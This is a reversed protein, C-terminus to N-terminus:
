VLSIVETAFGRQRAQHRTCPNQAAFGQLRRFEMEGIQICHFPGGRLKGGAPCSKGHDIHAIISFNRIKSQDFM